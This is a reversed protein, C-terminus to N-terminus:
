GKWLSFLLSILLDNALLFLFIDVFVLSIVNNKALDLSHPSLMM